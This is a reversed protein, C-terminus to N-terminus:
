RSCRHSAQRPTRAPRRQSRSTHGSRCKSPAPWGAPSRLPFRARRRPRPLDGHRVQLVQEIAGRPRRACGDVPGCSGRPQHDANGVVFGVDRMPSGVMRVLWDHGIHLKEAFALLRTIGDALTPEAAAALVLGFECRMTTIGAKPPCLPRSTSTKLREAKSGPQTFVDFAGELTRTRREGGNEACAAVLMASAPNDTGAKAPVVAAFIM